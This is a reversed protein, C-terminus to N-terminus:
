LLSLNDFVHSSIGKTKKREKKKLVFNWLEAVTFTFFM